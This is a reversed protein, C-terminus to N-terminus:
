MITVECPRMGTLWQLQVMAWVQRSVFLEIATMAEESVPTVPDSERVGSRGRKLPAVARLGELIHSHALEHEVAWKFMRRVRNIRTNILKRCWDQEIMRQRVTRLAAPGFHDVPLDGYLESLPHLSYKIAQQEGTPIGGKIYYQVVYDWYVDILENIFLDGTPKETIPSQRRNALWEATIRDYNAKSQDTGHAGLYHDKGDLTVIAQGSTKHLRYSPVRNTLKPM